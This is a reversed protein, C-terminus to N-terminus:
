YWRASKKYIGETTIEKWSANELSDKTAKSFDSASTGQITPFLKERQNPTDPQLTFNYNTTNPYKCAGTQIGINRIQGEKPMNEFKLLYAMADAKPMRDETCKYVKIFQQPFKQVLIKVEEATKDPERMLSIQRTVDYIGMYILIPLFMIFFLGKGYKKISILKYIVYGVLVFLFPELFYHYAFSREGWYYRLSIFNLLIVITPVLITRSLTKRVLWVIFLMPLVVMMIASIILPTGFIYSILKPWFQFVYITWSNAVYIRERAILMENLGHITHWNNTINFLLLPIFTAVLGLFFLVLGKYNKNKSLFWTAVPMILLGASQYHASISFGLFLGHMFYWYIKSQTDTLIRISTWLALTAFLSVSSINGLAMATTLESPALATILALLLGFFKSSIMRGIDYMAIVTILSALGVLIWPTYPTPFLLSSLIISIYYWPGFTYPGTSSFAGALPIYLDRAGEYAISADRIADGDLSYGHPFNWFRLIAGLTVISILLINSRVFLWSKHIINNKKIKSQM